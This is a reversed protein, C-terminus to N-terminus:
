MVRVDVGQMAKRRLVDLIADWMKGNDIIFFELFIYHEARELEELMDRLAASAARSISRRHTTTFLIGRAPLCTARM